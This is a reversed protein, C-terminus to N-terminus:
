SKASVLSVEFGGLRAVFLKSSEDKQPGCELDLHPSTDSSGNAAQNCVFRATTIHPRVIKASGHGNDDTWEM